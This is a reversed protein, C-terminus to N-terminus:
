GPKKTYLGDFSVAWHKGGDTTTEWLQRVSGDPNPTFLLRHEVTGGDPRRVVSRYRLTGDVFTGTLRIVGGGRDVWVQNWEGTSRDFFNMSQGSGGLAGVWHEHLICGGEELTIRNTGAQNGGMTVNWDGVWFDFARHDPTNCT